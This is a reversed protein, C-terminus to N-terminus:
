QVEKQVVADLGHAACAARVLFVHAPARIRGGGWRGHAGAPGAPGGGVGTM